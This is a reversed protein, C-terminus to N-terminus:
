LRNGPGGMYIKSPAVSNPGIGGRFPPAGTLHPPGAPSHYATVGPGPGITLRVGTQPPQGGGFYALRGGNIDMGGYPSSKQGRSYDIALTPHIALPPAPQGATM